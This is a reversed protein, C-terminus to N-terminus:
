SAKGTRKKLHLSKSMTQASAFPKSVRGVKVDHLAEELRSDIKKDILTKPTMIVKGKELNVELYDGPTLRLADHIKKPIVVQRSRGIKVAGQINM